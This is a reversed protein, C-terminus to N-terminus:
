RIFVKTTTTNIRGFLLALVFTAAFVVAALRISWRALWFSRVTCREFLSLCLLM